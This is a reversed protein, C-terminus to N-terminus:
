VHKRSSASRRQAARPSSIPTPESLPAELHGISEWVHHLGRMIRHLDPGVPRVKPCAPGFSQMNRFEAYVVDYENGLTSSLRQIHLQSLMETLYEALKSRLFFAPDFLPVQQRIVHVHHNRDRRFVRHRLHDPVNLSLAGYVQGPHVPFLPSIEDALVEPSPPIISPLASRLPSVPICGSGPAPLRGSPVFSGTASIPPRASSPM